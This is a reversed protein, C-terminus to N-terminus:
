AALIQALEALTAKEKDSVPEGGFGLFGSESSAEAVKQAIHGLWAKFAVTDAPAKADLIAVTAKLDTLARDKGGAVDGGTVVAKVGDRAATRGDSTLLDDVVATILADAGPNSKVEALASASAFSEKVLGFFGSPDAASIAFSALLPSQLLKKWEEPTFDTKTAMKEELEPRALSM